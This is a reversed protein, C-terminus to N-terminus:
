GTSPHTPANGGHYRGFQRAAFVGMLLFGIGLATIQAPARADFDGVHLLLLYAACLNGFGWMVNLTSSSLGKGPPTAFPSQFPRGMVGNITHPIANCLFIGGFFYAIIPLYSM